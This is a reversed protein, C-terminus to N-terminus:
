KSAMDYDAIIYNIVITYYLSHWKTSLKLDYIETMNGDACSFIHLPINPISRLSLEDKKYGNIDEIKEDSSKTLLVFCGGYYITM